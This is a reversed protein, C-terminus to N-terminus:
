GLLIYIRRKKDYAIIKNKRFRLMCINKIIKLQCEKTKCNYIRESLNEISTGNVGSEKLIVSIMENINLKSNVNQHHNM